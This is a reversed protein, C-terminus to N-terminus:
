VSLNPAPLNIQYKDALFMNIGIRDSLSRLESVERHSLEPITFKEIFNKQYCPYGGEIAVSTRSIYYHMIDSNLVKQVVDINKISSLSHTGFLSDNHSSEKFFIGYGNTFLAEEDEVVLFRPHQSFTPNLIKKGWRTLGQTRGWAYFPNYKVKGKDRALLEDKVSLLYEYCYPYKVQFIDEDIISASGNVKYPFIIRRANQLIDSQTKFDSIKYV